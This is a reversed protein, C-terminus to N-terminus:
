ASGSARALRGGRLRCGGGEARRSGVRAEKSTGSPEAGRRRIRNRRGTYPCAIPSSPPRSSSRLERKHLRIAGLPHAPEDPFEFEGNVRRLDRRDPQVEEALDRLGLAAPAATPFEVDKDRGVDRDEEDFGLPKGVVVTNDHFTVTHDHFCRYNQLRLTHLM